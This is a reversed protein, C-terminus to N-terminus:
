KVERVECFTQLQAFIQPCFSDRLSQQACQEAQWRASKVFETQRPITDCFGPTEKSAPLCGKLFLQTSLASNFGPSKKYRSLTQTVCGQNDTGLGFKRGEAMSQVSQDLFARGHTSFWYIGIGIGMAIIIVVVVVSIILGKALGTM